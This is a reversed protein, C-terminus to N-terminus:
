RPGGTRKTPDPPTVYGAENLVVLVRVSNGDTGRLIQIATGKDRLVIDWEVWLEDRPDTAPTPPRIKFMMINLGRYPALLTPHARILSTRFTMAKGVQSILHDVLGEGDFQQSVLHPRCLISAVTADKTRARPAQFSSREERASVMM